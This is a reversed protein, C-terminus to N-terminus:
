RTDVAFAFSLRSVVYNPASSPYEGKVLFVCTCALLHRLQLIPTGEERAALRCNTLQLCATVFNLKVTKYILARMTYM